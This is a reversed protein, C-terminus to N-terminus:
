DAVLEDHSPPEAPLWLLITTGKGAGESEAWIRGGHREAINRCIYLGIGLGPFNGEIATSARGFPEFISQLDDTRVGIGSDQVRLLAGRHEATLTVIVDGGDPSYKFANDIVNTVVQDLRDEDGQVIVPVRPRRLVIRTSLASDQEQYRQYIRQALADLDIPEIRLPLNGIRIHSVDLLDDVLGALRSGADALRRAFRNIREPDARGTLERELLASFGNIATIPTRLEHAAVSLFQDRTEIAARASRYLRANDIAMAARRALEEILGLDGPGYRGVTSSAVSLVGVITGRAMMPVIMASRFAFGSLDVGGDRVGFWHSQMDDDITQYLLSKGTQLVYSPGYDPAPDLPWSARFEALAQETDPDRHAVAYSEPEGQEDVVDVMCMDGLNMVVLRTISSLTTSVDLSTGLMASTEALIWLHYEAEHRETVDRCNAVIGDIAPDDFLNTATVELWRYGGNRHKFRLVIPQSVGPRKAVKVFATRLRKADQPHVRFFNDSGVIEEPTYGITREIAPSAYRVTGTRGLILIIDSAHQVLARFRDETRRREEEARRRETVDQLYISIGEEAPYVHIEFWRNLGSWYADINAANQSEAAGRLATEIESGILEPFVEWVVLGVPNREAQHLMALARQNLFTFRWSRDLAAFGATMRELTDTILRQAEKAKAREAELQALRLREKELRKRGTIDMTIGVIAAIAGDATREVVRGKGELWRVAGSPLVIRFEIEYDDGFQLFHRDAQQVVDRDDPHVLKLWDQASLQQTGEPLGYLSAMQESWRVDGSIPYWEWTGMGAAELALRLQRENTEIESYLLSREVALNLFGTVESVIRFDDEDLGLEIASEVNVVGTVQGRNFFPVCIEARLGPVAALFRPETRVDRILVAEGTRVVQGIVGRDVPVREIVDEYGIQERLVLYVDDEVTYISVHTYGFISAVQEVVTRFIKNLDIDVAIATRVRHLLALERTQREASALLQRVAPAGRNVMHRMNRGGAARRRELLALRQELVLWDLPEAMIDDAGLSLAVVAGPSDSSAVLALVSMSDGLEVARRIVNALISAADEGTLAQEDVVLLSCPNHVGAWDIAELGPARAIRYGRARLLDDLRAVESGESLILLANGRDVIGAAVTAKTPRFSGPM